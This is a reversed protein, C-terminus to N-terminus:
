KPRTNSSRENVNELGWSKVISEKLDGKPEWDMISKRSILRKSENKDNLSKDPKDM